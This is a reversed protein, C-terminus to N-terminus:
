YKFIAYYFLAGIILIPFLWIFIILFTLLVFPLLNKFHMLLKGM